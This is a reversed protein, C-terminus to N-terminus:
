SSSENISLYKLIADVKKKGIGDMNMLVNKPNPHNKLHVIVDTISFAKLTKIITSANAISVGPIMSLQLEAVTKPDKVNAKKKTTHCAKYSNGNIDIVNKVFHSSDQTVKLLINKVLNCTDSVGTSFFVPIGDRMMTNVIASQIQKTTCMPDKGKLLVTEDSWFNSFGELECIYAFRTRGYANVARCKQEHYRGDKISAHLDALSKREIAFLVMDTEKGDNDINKQVIQFDGIDLQQVIFNDKQSTLCENAQHERTDVVLSIAVSM